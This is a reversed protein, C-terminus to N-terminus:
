FQHEHPRITLTNLYTIFESEHESALSVFTRLEHFYQTDPVKFM